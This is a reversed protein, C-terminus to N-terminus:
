RQQERHAGKPDASDTRESAGTGSRLSMIFGSVIVASSVYHGDDFKRARNVSETSRRPTPRKSESRLWSRASAPLADVLREDPRGGVELSCEWYGNIAHDARKPEPVFRIGVHRSVGGESDQSEVFMFDELESWAYQRPKGSREHVEFGKGTLRLWGDGRARRARILAWRSAIRWFMYGFGVAMGGLVVVQPWHTPGPVTLWWYM